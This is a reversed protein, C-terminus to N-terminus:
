LDAKHFVLELPVPFESKQIPLFDSDSPIRLRYVIHVLSVESDTFRCWLSKQIPLFDADSFSKFRYFQMPPIESDTIRWWAYKQIPLFDADSLSKFRYIQM